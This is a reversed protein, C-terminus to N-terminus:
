AGVAKIKFPVPTPWNFVIRGYGDHTAARVKVPEAKAQGFSISLVTSIILLTKLCSYYLSGQM